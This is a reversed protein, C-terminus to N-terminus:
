WELFTFMSIIYEKNSGEPLVFFKKDPSILFTTPFRTYGFKNYESSSLELVPFTYKNEAMFKALDKSNFTITLFQISNEPLFKFRESMKSLKPLEKVCPSCWTGWMDLVVWQPTKVVSDIFANITKTGKFHKWNNTANKKWFEQFTDDNNHIKKLWDLSSSNPFANVLDVAYLLYREIESDTKISKEIIKKKISYISKFNNKPHIVSFSALTQILEAPTNTALIENPNKKDVGKFENLLIIKLYKKLHNLETYNTEKTSQNLSLLSEIIQFRDTSNIKLKYELNLYAATLYLGAFYTTDETSILGELLRNFQNVLTVEEKTNKVEFYFQIPQVFPASIVKSKAYEDILAIANKDGKEAAKIIPEFSYHFNTNNSLFISDFYDITKELDKDTFSQYASKRLASIDSQSFVSQFSYIFLSILLLYKM